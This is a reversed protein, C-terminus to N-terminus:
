KCGLPRPLDSIRRIWVRPNGGALGFIGIKQRRYVPRDFFIGGLQVIGAGRFHLDRDQGLPDITQGIVELGMLFVVM